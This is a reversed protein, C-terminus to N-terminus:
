VILILVRSELILTPKVNKHYIYGRKVNDGLPFTEFTKSKNQNLKNAVFIAISTIRNPMEQSYTFLLRFSLTELLVADFSVLLTLTVVLLVSDIMASLAGIM